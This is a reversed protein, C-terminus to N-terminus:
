GMKNQEAFKGARKWRRHVWWWERPNELVVREIFENVLRLNKVVDSDNDASGSISLPEEIIIEHKLWKHRKMYIPIVSAGTELAMQMPRSATPVVVGFFEVGAATSRTDQDMAVVLVGRNKLTELSTLSAERRPKVFIPNVKMRIFFNRIFERLAPNSSEKFVFKVPYGRRTLAATMLFLNGVHCTVALVGRDNELARRLHEEGTVPIKLVQNDQDYPQRYVICFEIFSSIVHRMSIRAIRRLEQEPKSDGYAIRLNDMVTKRLGFGLHWVFRGSLHVIGRLIPAPLTYSLFLALISPLAKIRELLTPPTLTSSPANVMDQSDTNM